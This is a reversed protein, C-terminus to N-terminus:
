PGLWVDRQKISAVRENPDFEITMSFGSGPGTLYNSELTPHPHYSSIQPDLWYSIGADRFISEVETRTEGVHLRKVLVADYHPRAADHEREQVYFSYQVSAIFWLYPLAIAGAIGLSSYFLVKLLTRVSIRKRDNSKPTTAARAILGVTIGAAVVIASLLLAGILSM